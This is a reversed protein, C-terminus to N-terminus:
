DRLGIEVEEMFRPLLYFYHFCAFVITYRVIIHLETASRVLSYGILM